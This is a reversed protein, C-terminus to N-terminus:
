ILNGTKKEILLAIVAQFASLFSQRSALARSCRGFSYTGLCRGSLDPHASSPELRMRASSQAHLACLPCKQASGSSITSGFLNTGAFVVPLLDIQVSRPVLCRASGHWVVTEIVTPVSQHHQISGKDSLTKEVTFPSKTSLEDVGDIRM